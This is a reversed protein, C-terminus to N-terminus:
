SRCARSTRSRRTPRSCSSTTRCSRCTCTRAACRACGISRRSTPPAPRPSSSGTSRWSTSSGRSTTPGAWCAGRRARRRRRRLRRARPRVRSPGRDQPAAAPRRVRRRRDAHAAAADRRAAALHPGRRAADARDRRRPGPVDRGRAALLRVLRQGEQDGPRRDPLAALRRAARELLSGVEDFSNPAIARSEGEYLRYVAFIALWGVAALPVLVALLWAPAIVAPPGIQEALRVHRAALARDRAHRGRDAGARARAAATRAAAGRVARRPAAARAAARAGARRHEARPEPRSGSM